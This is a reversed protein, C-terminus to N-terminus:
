ARFVSHVNAQGSYLSHSDAKDGQLWPSYLGPVGSLYCPLPPGVPAFPCRSGLGVITDWFHLADSASRPFIM